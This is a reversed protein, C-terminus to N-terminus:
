PLRHNKKWVFLGFLGLCTIITIWNGVSRVPTNTFRMELTNKGSLVIVSPQGAVINPKVENGNIYFHWGPFFAMYLLLTQTQFVQIEYKGYVETESIKTVQVSENGTVRDGVIGSAQVPIAIGKPLYEDSVKSARFRLEERTEFAAAPRSYLYQPTFLKANIFVVGGGLLIICVINMVPTRKYCVYGSLLSLCIGFPGLFRWPYQIFSAYPIFSWLPQSIPLMLFLFGIGLLTMGTMLFNVRKEKKRLVLWFFLSFLVIGIQFKGLKFSMGDLCGPASGGFGWPSDWLQSLCVYHDKYDATQGIVKSVNTYPMELLAPLWFFATLGLGLFFMSLCAIGFSRAAEQHKRMSILISAFGLAAVFGATLYGFVTHSLIVAALSFGAILIGFMKKNKQVALLIGLLVLPLFSTAWLEGIAGRVYVQVARYPFYTLLIASFLGGFVGFISSSLLFISISGVVVGLGIMIKTASLVDIGTLHIIGGVYYPLPGYFNFLPYGYGYGLDSVMRVPFQGHSLANAMVIVRAVQADDHMPFFGNSFLPRITWFSLFLIFLLIATKKM